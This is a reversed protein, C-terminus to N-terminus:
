ASVRVAASSVVAAAENGAGMAEYANAMLRRQLRDHPATSVALHSLLDRVAAVELQRAQLMGSAVARVTRLEVLMKGALRSLEDREARLAAAEAQAEQTALEAQVAAEEADALRDELEAIANAEVATAQMINTSFQTTM